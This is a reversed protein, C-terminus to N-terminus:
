PHADLTTQQENVFTKGNRLRKGPGPSFYFDYKTIQPQTTDPFNFSQSQDIDFTIDWYRSAGQDVGSADLAQFTIPSGYAPGTGLGTLITTYNLGWTNNVSTSTKVVIKWKDIDAGSIQANTGLVYLQRLTADTGFDVYRTYTAHIAESLQGSQKLPNTSAIATCNHGGNMMFYGNYFVGAMGFRAEAMSNPAQQWRGTTGDGNVAAMYVNASCSTSATGNRGGFVFVYGNAGM